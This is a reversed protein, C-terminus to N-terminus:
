KGQKLRAELIKKKRLVIIIKSFIININEYTENKYCQKPQHLFFPQM